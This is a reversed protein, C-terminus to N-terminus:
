SDVENKLLNFFQSKLTNNNLINLWILEISEWLIPDSFKNNYICKSTVVLRDIKYYYFQHLHVKRSPTASELSVYDYPNVLEEELDINPDNVVEKIKEILSILSILDGSLQPSLLNFADSFKFISLSDQIDTLIRNDTINVEAIVSNYIEFYLDKRKM